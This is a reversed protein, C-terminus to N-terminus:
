MVDNLLTSCNWSPYATHCFSIGDVCTRTSFKVLRAYFSFMVEMLFTMEMVLAVMRSVM